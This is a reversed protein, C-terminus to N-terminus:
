RLGERLLIKYLKGKGVKYMERIQIISKGEKYANIKKMKGLLTSDFM